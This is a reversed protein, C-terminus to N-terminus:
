SRLERHLGPVLSYPTIRAATLPLVEAWPDRPWLAAQDVGGSYRGNMLMLVSFGLLTLSQLSVM